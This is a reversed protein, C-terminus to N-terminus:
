LLLKIRLILMTPSATFKWISTASAAPLVLAPLVVVFLLLTATSRSAGSTVSTDMTEFLGSVEVALAPSLTVWVKVVFSGTWSKSVFRIVTLPSASRLKVLRLSLLVRQCTVPVTSASATEPRPPPPPVPEAAKLMLTSSVAPLAPFATVAVVSWVETARSTMAGCSVTTVSAEFLSLVLRALDPSLTVNLKM